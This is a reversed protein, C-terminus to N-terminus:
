LDSWSVENVGESTTEPNMKDLLTNYEDMSGAKRLMNARQVASETERKLARLIGENAENGKRLSGYLGEIVQREGESIVGGFLPKLRKYMENGLLVQLEAKDASTTGLFSEVATNAINVPGGTPVTQLLDFTANINALSGQLEPLQIAAAVQMKSFEQAATRDGAMGAVEGAAVGYTGGLQVLNGSPTKPAGPTVATYIPEIGGQKNRQETVSYINGKEDRFNGVSAFTATDAGEQTAPAAGLNAIDAGTTKDVLINTPVGNVDRKIVQTSGKTATPLVMALDDKTLGYNLAVQQIARQVNPNSVDSRSAIQTVTEIGQQRKQAATGKAADSAAARGATAATFLDQAKLGPVGQQMAAMAAAPNSGGPQQAMYYASMLASQQHMAQMKEAEEKAREERELRLRDPMSGALMGATGLKDAYSPNILGQILSQSFMSM